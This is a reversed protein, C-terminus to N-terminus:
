SSPALSKETTGLSLVLPLPCLSFCLFNQRFMLFFKKGRLTVSCQFLSGLSTTSEGERSINLVWRSLTRHLRSYTTRSRCSPQVLHGVSTGELGSCETIRHNKEEVQKIIVELNHQEMMKGPISTLSVLRYNGPDEKKGKKFIPTVNAKRLDKPVEGTRWSREFIISLPEAIIDALERLVQPHMGNPVMTKDADLNSFHDRVYGEKVLPLDDKRCAEERVELAQSEQPGAKASFVSAFAANLLEAKEADEM